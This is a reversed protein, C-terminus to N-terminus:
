WHCVRDLFDEFLDTVVGSVKADALNQNPFRARAPEREGMAILFRCILQLYKSGWFVRKLSRFVVIRSVITRKFGSGAQTVAPSQLELREFVQSM